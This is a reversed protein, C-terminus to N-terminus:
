TASLSLRYARAVPSESASSSTLVGWHSLLGSRPEDQDRVICLPACKNGGSPSPGTHNLAPYYRKEGGNDQSYIQVATELVNVCSCSERLRAGTLLQRLSFGFNFIALITNHPIRYMDRRVPKVAQLLTWRRPSTVASVLRLPIETRWSYSMTKKRKTLQSVPLRRSELSGWTATTELVSAIGRM